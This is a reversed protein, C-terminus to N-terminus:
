QRLWETLWRHTSNFSRLPMQVVFRDDRPWLTRGIFKLFRPAPVLEPEGRCGRHQACQNKADHHTSPLCHARRPGLMLL